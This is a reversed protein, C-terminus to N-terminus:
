PLAEIEAELEQARALRAYAGGREVLERHTGREVIRGEELYLIQDADRLASVRHAVVIVTHREGVRALNHLIATETETDVASLADDLVLVPAGTALARALAARQKQGGSLTVGREGIVTELGEPFHQLDGDLRADAVARELDEPAADPRGFAVNSRLTTSFLFAEQPVLAVASRLRGLPIDHVDRGDLLVTGRPPDYLRALVSLLTSKGSGTPGVVGLSGGAPLEFSVDHLVRPGGPYAFDLGRVTFGGAVPTDDDGARGDTDTEPHEALVEAIRDIGAAGRQVMTMVWGVAMMPWVLMALYTNFLLLSGLDFTGGMVRQGGIWLILGLGLGSMMTIWGQTLGRVQALRLNADVYERGLADMADAERHEIAFTKVVRAGAMSEQTRASITALQDQVARSARHIRPALRFLGAAIGALPVLVWLTLQVNVLLMVTLCLAFRLIADAIYMMAPGIAQRATELDATARSMLDGTRTRDFWAVTLRQLHSFLDRRLKTELHRSVGMLLYRKFFSTLAGVVAVALAAGAFLAVRGLDVEGTAREITRIGERAFLPAVVMAANSAVLAAM